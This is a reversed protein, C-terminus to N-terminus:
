NSAEKGSPLIVVLRDTGSESKAAPAAENLCSFAKDPVSPMGVANERIAPHIAAVGLSLVILPRTEIVARARAAANAVGAKAPPPPIGVVLVSQSFFLM